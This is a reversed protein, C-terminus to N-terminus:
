STPKNILVGWNRQIFSPDIHQWRNPDIIDPSNELEVWHPQCRVFFSNLSTESPIEFLKTEHYAGIGGGYDFCIELPETEWQNSFHIDEYGM